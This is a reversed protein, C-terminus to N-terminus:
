FSIVVILNAPLPPGRPACNRPLCELCFIVIPRVNRREVPLTTPVLPYSGQSPPLLAGTSVDNTVGLRTVCHYRKLADLEFNFVLIHRVRVASQMIIHLNHSPPM